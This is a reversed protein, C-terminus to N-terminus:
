LLRTAETRARGSRTSFTVRRPADHVGLRIRREETWGQLRFEGGGVHVLGIPDRDEVMLMLREGAIAVRAQVDEEDAVTAGWRLFSAPVALDGAYQHLEAPSLPVTPASLAVDSWQLLDQFEAPFWRILEPTVACDIVLHVRTESGNNMATHPQDFDAYWLRGATWHHEEGGIRLLSGANTVIPLHLRILGYRFGIVTDRHEALLVGPDLAILRVVFLEAPITSLLESIYPTESLWKTDSVGNESPWGMGTQYPDGGKSRLSLLRWPYPTSELNPAEREWVKTLRALDDLLRDQDFEPSLRATAALTPAPADINGTQSSM